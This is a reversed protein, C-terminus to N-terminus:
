SIDARQDCKQIQYRASPEVHLSNFINDTSIYNVHNGSFDTKELEVLFLSKLFSFSHETLYKRATLNISNEPDHVEGHNEHNQIVLQIGFLITAKKPISAQHYLIQFRYM